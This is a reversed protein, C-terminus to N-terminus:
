DQLNEIKPNFFSQINQEMSANFYFDIVL